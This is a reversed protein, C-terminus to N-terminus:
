NLYDLNGVFLTCCLLSQQPRNGYVLQVLKMNGMLKRLSALYIKKDEFIVVEVVLMLHFFTKEYKCIKNGIKLMLLFTQKREAPVSMLVLMERFSARM